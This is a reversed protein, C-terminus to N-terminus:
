NIVSAVVFPFRNLGQHYMQFWKFISVMEPKTIQLCMAVLHIQTATKCSHMSGFSFQFTEAWCDLSERSNPQKTHTCCNLSFLFKYHQANSIPNKIYMHIHVEWMGKKDVDSDPRMVAIILLSIHIYTLTHTHPAVFANYVVIKIYLIDYLFLRYTATQMDHRWTM